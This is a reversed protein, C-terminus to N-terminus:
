TVVRRWEAFQADGELVGRDDYANGINRGTFHCQQLAIYEM